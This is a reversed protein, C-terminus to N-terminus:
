DYIFMVKNSDRPKADPTEDPYGIAIAYLLKYDDSFKLKELYSKAKDNDNMFRIPGGLCCTGLGLSYAALMMNEAALGCDFESGGNAPTGIFIVCPANRFMNKFNPDEQVKPNAEKFIDTIGDIYAKSDVIRIEWPQKNMGSPANIGCTAVLDLKEKEVPKDKYKRISRREMIAQVVENKNEDAKEIKQEDSGKLQCGALAILGALFLLKPTKM